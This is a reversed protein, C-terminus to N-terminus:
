NKCKNVLEDFLENTKQEDQMNVFQNSDIFCLEANFQNNDM